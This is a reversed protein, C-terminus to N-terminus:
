LTGHAVTQRMLKLLCGNGCAYASLSADRQYSSGVLKQADEVGRQRGVFGGHARFAHGPRASRGKDRTFPGTTGDGEPARCSGPMRQTHTSGRQEDGGVGCCQDRLRVVNTRDRRNGLGSPCMASANESQPSCVPSNLRVDPKRLPPPPAPALGRSRGRALRPPDTPGYRPTSTRRGGAARDGPRSRRGLRPSGRRARRARALQRCTRGL